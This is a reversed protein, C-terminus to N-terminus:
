RDELCFTTSKETSNKTTTKFLDGILGADGAGPIKNLDGTTTDEMLGGLVATEGSNLRILSEMEQTVTEPIQNSAGAPLTVGNPLPIDRNTGTQRSITPRVHLTVEGDQAIHPTISM